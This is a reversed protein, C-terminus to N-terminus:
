RASVISYAMIYLPRRAAAAANSLIPVEEDDRSVVVDLLVVVNGILAFGEQFLGPIVFYVEIGGHQDAIFM